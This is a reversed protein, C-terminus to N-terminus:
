GRDLLPMQSSIDFSFNTPLKKLVFGNFLEKCEDVFPSVFDDLSAPEKTSGCWLATVFPKTKFGPSICRGTIPWLANKKRPAKYPSLGDIFVDLVVSKQEDIICSMSPEFYTDLYTKIGRYWYQGGAMEKLYKSVCHVTGLLTTARKPLEDHGHSRLITLLSDVASHSINFNLAWETLSPQLSAKSECVEPERLPSENDPDVENGSEYVSIDSDDDTSYHFFLPIEFSNEHGINDEVLNSSNEQAIAPLQGREGELYEPTPVQLGTTSLVSREQQSFPAPLVGAEHSNPEEPDSEDSYDHLGTLALRNVEDQFAANRAENKERRKRKRRLAQCVFCLTYFSSGFLSVFILRRFSHNKKDDCDV